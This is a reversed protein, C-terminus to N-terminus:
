FLVGQALRGAAKECYEESIEILTAKRGELKAAVGTTEAGAFPDLVTEADEVLSLCWRM